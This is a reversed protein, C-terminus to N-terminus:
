YHVHYHSPVHGDRKRNSDNTTRISCPKMISDKGPQYLMIFANESPSTNASLLPSLESVRRSIRTLHNFKALESIITNTSDTKSHAPDQRLSWGWTWPCLVKLSYSCNGVLMEVSVDASLCSTLEQEQRHFHQKWAQLRPQSHPWDSLCLFLNARRQITKKANIQCFSLKQKRCAKLFALLKPSPSRSKEATISATFNERSYCVTSFM